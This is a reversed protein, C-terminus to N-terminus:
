ELFTAIGADRGTKRGVKVRKVAGRLWYLKSSINYSARSASGNNNWCAILAAVCASRSRACRPDAYRVATSGSGTGARADAHPEPL